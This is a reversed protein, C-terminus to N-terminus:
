PQQLLSPNDLALKEMQQKLNLFKKYHSYEKNEFKWKLLGCVKQYLEYFKGADNTAQVQRFVAYYTDSLHKFYFAYAKRDMALTPNGNRGQNWMEVPYSKALQYLVDKQQSASVNGMAFLLLITTLM